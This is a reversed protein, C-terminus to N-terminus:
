MAINFLFILLRLQIVFYSAQLLLKLHNATGQEEINSNSLKGIRM